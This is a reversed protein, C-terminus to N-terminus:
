KESQRELAALATRLFSRVEEQSVQQGWGGTLAAVQDFLGATAKYSEPACALVWADVDLPREDGPRLLSVRWLGPKLGTVTSSQGRDPKWDFALLEPTKGRGKTAESDVRRFRALYMGAPATKFVPSLDIESGNLKVVAERLRLSEGSRVATILYREPHGSFLGGMARQFRGLWSTREGLSKPLEIPKTFETPAREERKGNYFTIIISAGNTQVEESAPDLTIVAGGYVPDGRKRSFKVGDQLWDGTSDFVYGISERKEEEAVGDSCTVVALGAILVFFAATLKAGAVRFLPFKQSFM